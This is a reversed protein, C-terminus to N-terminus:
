PRRPMDSTDGARPHFMKQVAQESVEELNQGQQLRGSAPVTSVVM